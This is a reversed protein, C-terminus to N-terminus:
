SLSQLINYNGHVSIKIVKSIDSGIGNTAQCLYYGEDSKNIEKIILSGNELAHIHSNSIVPQYHTPSASSSSSSLSSSSSSSILPLSSSLSDSHEWWIRPQPYGSAQCDMIVDEGVITDSDSPALTWKPPVTFLYFIILILFVFFKLITFNVNLSIM